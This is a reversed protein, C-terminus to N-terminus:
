WFTVINEYMMSWWTEKSSNEWEEETGPIAKKDIEHLTKLFRSNLRDYYEGEIHDDICPYNSSLNTYLALSLIHQRISSNIFTTVPEKGPKVAFLKVAGHDPIDIYTYCYELPPISRDSTNFKLCRNNGFEKPYLIGNTKLVQGVSILTSDLTNFNLREDLFKVPIGVRRIFEMSITGNPTPIDKQDILMLDPFTKRVLSDPDRLIDDFFDFSVPRM